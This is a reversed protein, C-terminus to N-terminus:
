RRKLLADVGLTRGAGSLALVIFSVIFTEQQALSAGGRAMGPGLLYHIMMFIGIIAAPRVLLGILLCFGVGIEGLTVLYGFLVSHPIVVESLFAKYWPYLDIESLNGIQRGIWDRHPFDRTYKAIGQQLMYYGIWLRLLVLHWLYTKESFNM